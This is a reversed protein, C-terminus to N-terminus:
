KLFGGCQSKGHNEMGVDFLWHNSGRSFARYARPHESRHPCWRLLYRIKWDSWTFSQQLTFLYTRPNRPFLQWSNPLLCQFWISIWVFFPILCQGPVRNFQSMALLKETTLVGAKALANKIWWNWRWDSSTYRWYFWCDTHVHVMWNIWKGM